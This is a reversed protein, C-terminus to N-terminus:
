YETAKFPIMGSFALLTGVDESQPLRARTLEPCIPLNSIRIHCNVKVSLEYESQNPELDRLREQQALIAAKEFVPILLLPSKLLQTSVLMNSDFLELTNVHIAYHELENEATLIEQMEVDCHERLFQRFVLEADRLNVDANDM